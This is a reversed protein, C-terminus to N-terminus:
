LINIGFVHINPDDFLLTDMWIDCLDVFGFIIQKIECDKM